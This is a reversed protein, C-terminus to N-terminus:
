REIRLGRQQELREVHRDVAREIAAALYDGEVQHRVADFPLLAAPQRDRPRVFHWGYASEVPGSWGGVPVDWLADVFAEGFMGRLMSRGYREFSMGRAFPDGEVSAGQQLRALWAATDDPRDRFYVHDFSASPESRYQDLHSSYYDVLEEDTPDPLPGAIERRMDEVLRSRVAGSSLHLGREVAEHLLVEDVIYEHELRAIEAADPPRGAVAAFNAQLAASTDASLRVTPARSREVLAHTAFLLGGLLLFAVLPERLWRLLTSLRRSASPAADDV